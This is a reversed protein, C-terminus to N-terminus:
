PGSSATMATTPKGSIPSRIEFRRNESALDTGFADEAAGDCAHHFHGAAATKERALQDRTVSHEQCSRAIRLCRPMRRNELFRPEAPWRRHGRRAPPRDRDSWGGPPRSPIDADGREKRMCTNSRHGVPRGAHIGGHHNCVGSGRIRIIIGFGNEDHIQISRQAAGVRQVLRQQPQRGGIRPGHRSHGQPQAAALDAELVRDGVAHDDIRGRQAIIRRHDLRQFPGARSPPARRQDRGRVPADGLRHGRMQAQEVLDVAGIGVAAPRVQRPM